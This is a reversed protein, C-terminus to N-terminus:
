WCPALLLTSEVQLKNYSLCTSEALIINLIDTIFIFVLDTVLCAIYTYRLTSPRQHSWQQLPFDVLICYESHTDTAM